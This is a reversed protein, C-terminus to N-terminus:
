AVEERYTIFTIEDEESPPVIIGNFNYNEAKKVVIVVGDKLLIPKAVSLIDDMTVVGKSKWINNLYSNACSIVAKLNIIEREKTLM